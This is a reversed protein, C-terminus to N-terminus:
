EFAGARDTIHQCLNHKINYKSLFYVNFSWYFPFCKKWTRRTCQTYIYMYRHLCLYAKLLCQLYGPERHEELTLSAIDCYFSLTTVRIPLPILCYTQNKKIELMFIGPLSPLPSFWPIKIHFGFSMFQVTLCGFSVKFLLSFVKFKTESVNCLQAKEIADSTSFYRLLRWVPTM